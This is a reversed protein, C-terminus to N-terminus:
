KGEGAPTPTIATVVILKAKEDSDPFANLPIKAKGNGYPELASSDLGMDAALDNISRM